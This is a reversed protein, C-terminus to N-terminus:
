IVQVIKIEFGRAAGDNNTIVFREYPFEPEISSTVIQAAGLQGNFVRSTVAEWTSGDLSKQIRFTFDTIAGHCKVRFLYAKGPVTAYSPSNATSNGSVILNGALTNVAGWSPQRGVVKLRDADLASPLGAGQLASTAFGTIAPTSGSQIAVKLSGSDLALPLGAGTKTLINNLDTHIQPFNVDRIHICADRTGDTGARVSTMTTNLQPINVDRLSVAAHYIGSTHSTNTIISSLRDNTLDQATDIATLVTEVGDSHSILNTLNTNATALKSSNEASAADVKTHLTTLHTNLTSLQAQRVTDHSVRSKLAASHIHVDPQRHAM